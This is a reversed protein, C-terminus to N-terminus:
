AAGPRHRLLALAPEPVLQPLAFPPLRYQPFCRSTSARHLVHVCKCSTDPVQRLNAGTALAAQMFGYDEGFNQDPFRAKEWVAKRYAYSFGFGLLTKPGDGKAYAANVLMGSMPESSWVLHPGHMRELDWYGLEEYVQSYVYWASLKTIDIGGDFVPGLAALYGPGYYDDDDFHVMIQGRATEILANRKAGISMRRSVHRYRVRSDRLGSFFESPQPSDDLILWEFDPETQEAVCPYQLGLKSERNWTPTIISYKPSM